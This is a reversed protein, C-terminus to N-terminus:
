HVVHRSSAFFACALRSGSAIDTSCCRHVLGSTRWHADRLPWPIGGGFHRVKRRQLSGPRSEELAAAIMAIFRKLSRFRGCPTPSCAGAIAGKRPTELQRGSLEELREAMIEQIANAALRRAAKSIFQKPARRVVLKKSVGASRHSRWPRLAAHPSWTLNEFGAAACPPTWRRRVGHVRCANGRGTRPPGVLRGDTGASERYRFRRQCWQSFMAKSVTGARRRRASWNERSRFSCRGRDWEAFDARRGWCMEFGRTTCGLPVWPRLLLAM